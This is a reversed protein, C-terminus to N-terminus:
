NLRVYSTSNVAASSMGLQDLMYYAGVGIVVCALIATFFAKM